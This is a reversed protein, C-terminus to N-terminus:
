GRVLNVDMMEDWDAETVALAPHDAGLGANNVLIDLRGFHQRVRDFVSNIQAVDSVDLEFVDAEGEETRIEDSLRTLTDVSRAALAM